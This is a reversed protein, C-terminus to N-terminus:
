LGRSLLDAVEEAHGEAQVKEFVHAIRGERDIVFTTRVVGMYNKGMFSKEQWVGYQEAVQHGVDALLRYPLAFKRKFKKHSEVSDPSVGLM